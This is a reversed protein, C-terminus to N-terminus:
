KTFAMEDSKKKEDATREEVRESIERVFIDELDMKLPKIEVVKGRYRYIEAILPPLNDGGKCRLITLHESIM